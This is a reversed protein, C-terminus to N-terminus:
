SALEALKSDRESWLIPNVEFDDLATLIKQSVNKKPSKKEHNQNQGEVSYPIDNLVTYMKIEGERVKAVDRWSFCIGQVANRDPRNVVRVLREPAVKSKTILFDFQHDFGSGGSLKIQRSHRIDSEDMWEAVEETFISKQPQPFATYFLDDVALMAQLLSHKGISFDKSSVRIELADNKSCQVGFGVLTSKLLTRRRSSMKCGCLELDHITYGDDTLIIKDKERNVYIQMHDNHRDLFPTTIEVVDNEQRLVTRDRLWQWYENMLQEIENKM